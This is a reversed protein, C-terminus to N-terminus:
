EGHWPLTYLQYNQWIGIDLLADIDRIRPPLRDLSCDLRKESWVFSQLMTGGGESGVTLGRTRPALISIVSLDRVADALPEDWRPDDEDILTELYDTYQPRHRGRIHSGSARETANDIRFGIRGDPLGSVTFEFSGVFQAVTFPPVSSGSRFLAQLGEADDFIFHQQPRTNGSEYFVRRVNEHVVLSRALERTLPNSAHLVLEPPGQECVFNELLDAVSAPNGKTKNGCTFLPEWGAMDYAQQCTRIADGVSIWPPVNGRLAEAYLGCWIFDYLGLGSADTANVPNGLVYRWGNLTGPSRTDGRWADRSTWMGMSSSYYRARLYELGTQDLQEGTFSLATSASGVSALVSGYPEFSRALSVTGTSNALERVSGLADGLHYQWGEPQEEGIRARGYLYTSVTDDLVQTLGAALDLTYDYPTGDPAIQQVRNGLGDYSFTYNADGQQVERLRNAHDYTYTSAGDSLLNGNADWTHAVGDVSTLRNAIDYTYTNTGAETEQTLRNGVADYTYHFFEGTSYDAATLRYLPDYTYDITVDTEITGGPIPVLDETCGPVTCTTTEGSWFQVGDLDARFRYDGTPLAFVVEGEADSTGSFGTYTDAVFAYVPLDPYATGALDQVSVTVPITVTVSAAVCGPVDCHNAEGSWYQTGNLDSRFRYSGIPLVFTAQGAANTVGNFGTYTEGDFAYVPLGEKPTGDTDLVTLVLPSTVEISVSECGPVDCHNTEASWFQTGLLDARFRYSGEPLTFPVDGLDDTTGSFGTYTDGDFAYVPQGAQPDGDTDLVTVTVPLTVVVETALCGPVECHNAEGSWFQTGDRDSRFRYSGQPLTFVAEGSADTTRSYGTYTAGNFAYVPRGAPPTGGTSRVTVVLPVTVTIGASTCGPVDCHNTEASWFQTGNRDSRFRYSGQPLTFVAEGSADTTRAYGTYAAGNFAYVSLGQVPQSDTDLVTVTVPITVVVTASECVPVTCHNEAGSWFQAGNLDSRFRYDGDPLSLTAIGSSNTTASYGTYATGNFAYVPLGAQPTGDTDQVTVAVSSPDLLRGAAPAPDPAPRAVAAPDFWRGLLTLPMALAHGGGLYGVQTPTPEPTDTPTPELTPTSTPEPTATPSGPLSVTVFTTLCGPVACHNAEGSWFQSGDVDARFRYDGVPLTFVVRGDEDSTGHYGTYTSGDFAYVAIGTQSQGEGDVVIVEVPITVTVSAADCPPVDCHNPEGSWFQTGNLDSRFRYSSFPLQLNAQGEANTTAQFGTNTLGEFAYVPLDPMALGDTDLVTVIVPRPVDIYTEECGPVTCLDLWSDWYQTGSVDARFRYSGEPLTLSAWGDEDTTAHYGTYTSGQFAYVPIGSLPGTDWQWVQLRVPVTVTVMASECGPIVCHDDTGSWFQTGNLDARFRYAGEPLTLLVSGNENTTGSHGTFAGGSYAYVQLDPQATGFSDQVIVEVPLTITITALTCGPVSCDDEVSSWFQTGASDARFRYAGQPLRLSVQGNEDTTGQYGSYVGASFAYVPLDPLPASQTDTVSVLVPPPVTIMAGLCGPIPCHNAPGSWFQTGDVDVRFRYDGAPLTITAVGAEDTVRSYGSYTEGNFAYVTLGPLPAGSTDTVTVPITPGGAPM